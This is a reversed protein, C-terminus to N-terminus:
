PLYIDVNYIIDPVTNCHATPAVGRGGAGVAARLGLGLDRRALLGAGSVARPRHVLAGRTCAM